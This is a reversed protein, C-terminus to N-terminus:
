FPCVAESPRSGNPRLPVAVESLRRTLTRSLPESCTADWECDDMGGAMRGHSVQAAHGVGEHFGPEHWNVGRVWFLERRREATGFEVGVPLPPGHSRFAA